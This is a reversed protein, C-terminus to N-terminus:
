LQGHAMVHPSCDLSLLFWHHTWCSHCATGAPPASWLVIDPGVQAEVLDLIAPHTALAWM